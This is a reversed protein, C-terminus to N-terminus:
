SNKAQDCRAWGKSQPFNGIELGMPLKKANIDSGRWLCHHKYKDIQNLIVIPVKIACLYFSPLSSLISNVLQLRAGQSMLISTNVLRKEIRHVLPFCDQASPKSLGLPLGLYTFPLQGAKCHFTAVLYNLRNSSINIPIMNLKSYNVKLGTSDAFTNLIAKLALLQRPCSEM